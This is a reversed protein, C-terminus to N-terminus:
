NYNLNGLINEKFWVDDAEQLKNKLLDLLQAFLEPHKRYDLDTLQYPDAYDDFITIKNLSYDRKISIEFSYRDTKLGRAVPFFGRVM